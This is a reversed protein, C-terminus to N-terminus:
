SRLVTAPDISRIRWYPLWAAVLCVTLILIVSIAAVQWTLMVPAKPSSIAGGIGWAAALGLLLGLM